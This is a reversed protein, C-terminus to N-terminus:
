SAKHGDLLIGCIPVFPPKPGSTLRRVSATALTIYTMNILSRTLSHAQSRTLTHALTHTHTLNAAAAAIHPAALRPNSQSAIYTATATPPRRDRNRPNILHNTREADLCALQKERKGRRVSAHIHTDTLGHRQM